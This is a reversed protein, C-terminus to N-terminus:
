QSNPIRNRSCQRPRLAQASANAVIEIEQAVLLDQLVCGATKITGGSCVRLQARWSFM